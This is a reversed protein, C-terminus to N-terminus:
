PQDEKKAKQIQELMAEHNPYRGCEIFYDVVYPDCYYANAQGPHIAEYPMYGHRNLFADIRASNEQLKKRWPHM